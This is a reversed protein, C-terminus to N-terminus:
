VLRLRWEEENEPTQSNWGWVDIFDGDGDDVVVFDTQFGGAEAVENVTEIPDMCQVIQTYAISRTISDSANM